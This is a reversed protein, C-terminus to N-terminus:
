LIPNNIGLENLIFNSLAKLHKAYDRAQSSHEIFSLWIIVNANCLKLFLTNKRKVIFPNM